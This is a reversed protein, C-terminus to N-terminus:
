REDLAAADSLRGGCNCVINAALSDNSAGPSLSSARRCQPKGRERDIVVAERQRTVTDGESQKWTVDRDQGRQHRAPTFHDGFCGQKVFM